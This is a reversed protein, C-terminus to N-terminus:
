ISTPKTQKKTVSEKTVLIAQINLLEDRLFYYFSVNSFDQIKLTKIINKWRLALDEFM